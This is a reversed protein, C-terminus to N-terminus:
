EEAIANFELKKIKAKKIYERVEIEMQKATEQSNLNTPINIFRYGFLYKVLGEVILFKRIDKFKSEINDIRDVFDGMEMVNYSGTPDLSQNPTTYLSFNYIPKGEYTFSGSVVKKSVFETSTNDTCNEDATENLDEIQIDQMDM